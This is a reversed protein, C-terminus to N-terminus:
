QKELKTLTKVGGAESATFSVKDGAHVAELSQGGTKFQEAAGGTGAGTTGSQTQQIVVTGTTRDIRTITGTRMEQAFAASGLITLAATGAIVINAIKM